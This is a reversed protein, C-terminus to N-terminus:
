FWAWWGIAGGLVCALIVVWLPKLSAGPIVNLLLDGPRGAGSVPAAGQGRLRVVCARSLTKPLSLAIRGGNDHESLVRLARGSGDKRALGLPVRVVIREGRALREPRVRITHVLDAGRPGSSRDDDYISGLRAM